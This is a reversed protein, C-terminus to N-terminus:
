AGDLLATISDLDADELNQFVLRYTWRDGDRSSQAVVAGTVVESGDPLEVQVTTECTCPLPRDLHALVGHRGLGISVGTCVGFDGETDVVHVPLPLKVEPEWSTHVDHLLTM